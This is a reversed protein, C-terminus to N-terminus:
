ASPGNGPCRWVLSCVPPASVTLSADSDTTVAQAVVEVARDELSHRRLFEEGCVVVAAAGDSTPSCQLMTLPDFIPKSAMVQCRLVGVIAIVPQLALVLRLTRAPACPM